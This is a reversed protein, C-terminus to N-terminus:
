QLMDGRLTRYRKRAEPVFLSGPYTNLLEQYLTMAGQKDGLRTEHILARNMMAEDTIIDEPHNRIVIAFMSDALIYKGLKNYIEGKRYIVNDLIPHIKFLLPISDLTQLALNERNRFDALGARSYIGLAVTNSDPDYNNSILMSLELADNAIFKTTAAKLIDLQARAWEFEGMYYLLRANRFKAEQGIADNKFDRYVQQYLVTATWM